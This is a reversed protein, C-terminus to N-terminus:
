TVLVSKKLLPKWVESEVPGKILLGCLEWTCFRDFFLPWCQLLLFAPTGGM